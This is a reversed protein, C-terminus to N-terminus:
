FGLKGGGGNGGADAVFTISNPGPYMTGDFLSTLYTVDAAASVRDIVTVTEISVNGGMDGVGTVQPTSASPGVPPQVRKYSALAAQGPAVGLLTLLLEKQERMQQKGILAAIKWELKSRWGQQARAIPSYTIMDGTVNWFPQYGTVTPFAVAM